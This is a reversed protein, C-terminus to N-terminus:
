CDEFGTKIYSNLIFINIEEEIPYIITECENDLFDIKFQGKFNGEEDVDKKNFDYKLIYYYEIDDKYISEPKSEFYADRNAIKYCGNTKNIMSFTVVANDFNYSDFDETPELVLQISPHTSNKRLFFDM